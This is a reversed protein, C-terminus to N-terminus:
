LLVQQRHTSYCAHVSSLPRRPSPAFVRAQVNHAREISYWRGQQWLFCCGAAFMASVTWVM